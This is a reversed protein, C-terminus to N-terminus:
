GKFIIISLILNVILKSTPEPAQTLEKDPTRSEEQSRISIVDVFYVDSHNEIMSVFKGIAHFSDAGIVLIFPSRIYFPQNEETGPKISILRVNSEKAISSMTDTVSYADKRSFLNRYLKITKESRSIENLVDNKKLETDKTVHLSEIKKTQVSFIILTIILTFIIIGISLVKKKGKLFLATSKERSYGIRM